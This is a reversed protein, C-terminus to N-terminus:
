KSLNTLATKGEGGSRGNLGPKKRPLSPEGLHSELLTVGVLSM